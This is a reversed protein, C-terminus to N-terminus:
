FWALAMFFLCVYSVHNPARCNIKSSAKVKLKETFALRQHKFAQDETPSGTQSVNIVHPGPSQLHTLWSLAQQALLLYFALHPHGTGTVGAGQLYVPQELLKSALWGLQILLSQAWRSLRDGFYTSHSLFVDAESRWVCTGCMFMYVCIYRM